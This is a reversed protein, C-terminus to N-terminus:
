KSLVRKIKGAFLRPNRSYYRVQKLYHMLPSRMKQNHSDVAEALEQLLEVFREKRVSHCFYNDPSQHSYNSWDLGGKIMGLEKAKEYSECGPYPTFVSLCLYPATSRRAYEITKLIDEETEEPFGIMLFVGYNVNYRELLSCADDFADMTINKKIINLMRDSATELGIGMTYCGADVMRKLLEKDLIDIRTTCQWPLNIKNAVIKGMLEEVRKRNVTFSDDCFDYYPVAYEEKLLIMERIVDDVDRYRVKRTWISKASCFTCEYPCGRSSMIASIKHKPYREIHIYEERTPFPFGTINKELARPRNHIIKGDRRFSLGDIRIFGDNKNILAECLELFTREGEGRVVFDVEELSLLDDPAVTAHPGGVVIKCTPQLEKSIRAVRIASELKASMVTIGLVDARIDAFVGRLDSWIVNNSDGLAKRYTDHRKLLETFSVPAAEKDGSSSLDANYVSCSIDKVRLYRALYGLGLPLYSADVGMLRMYPPNVLLVHM